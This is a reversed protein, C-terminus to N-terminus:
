KSEYPQHKAIITVVYNATDSSSTETTSHPLHLSPLRPIHRGLQERLRQRAAEQRTIWQPDQCTELEIIPDPMSSPIDLPCRSPPEPNIILANRLQHIFLGIPNRPHTPQDYKQQKNHASIVEVIDEASWVQPDINLYVLAHCLNWLHSRGLWPMALELHAALRQIPLPPRLRHARTNRQPPPRPAAGMRRSTSKPVWFEETTNISEIDSRSLHENRLHRLMDPTILQRVSALKKIPTGSQKSAARRQHTSLWNGQWAVRTLHLAQAVDRCRRVTSVSCGMTTAVTKHSTTVWLGTTRDVVSAEVAIFDLFTARSVHHSALVLQGHKSNVARVVHKQFIQASFWVPNKKNRTVPIWLANPTSRTVVRLTM